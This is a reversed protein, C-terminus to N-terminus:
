QLTNDPPVVIFGVQNKMSFASFDHMPSDFAAIFYLLPYPLLISLTFRSDSQWFTTPHVLYVLM